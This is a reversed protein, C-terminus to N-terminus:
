DRQQLAVVEVLEVARQLGLELLFADRERLGVEAGEAVLQAGGPEVLFPAALDAVLCPRQELLVDALQGSPRPQEPGSYCGACNVSASSRPCCHTDLQGLSVRIVVRM